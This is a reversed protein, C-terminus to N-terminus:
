DAVLLVQASATGIQTTLWALQGSIEGWCSTAVNHLETDRNGQAAKAVLTWAIDLHSTYDYVEHLDRLLGLGGTRPEVLGAVHLRDPAPHDGYRARAPGLRTTHEECERRFRGAQTVIEPEDRHGEALVSYSRALTTSGEELLHVYSALHM